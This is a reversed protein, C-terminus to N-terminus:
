AAVEDFMSEAENTVAELDECYCLAVGSRAIATDLLGVMEKLRDRYAEAAMKIGALAVASDRKEAMEILEKGSKTLILLSARRPRISWELSQEMRDVTELEEDSILSASGEFDSFIKDLQEDTPENSEPSGVTTDAKAM